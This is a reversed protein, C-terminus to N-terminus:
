PIPYVHLCSPITTLSFTIFHAIPNSTEINHFFQQLSSFIFCHDSQSFNSILIDFATCNSTVSHDLAHSQSHAALTVPILLRCYTLCTLFYNVPSTHIGRRSPLTMLLMAPSSTSFPTHNKLSYPSAVLDLSCSPSPSLQACHLSFSRPSQFSSLLIHLPKLAATTLLPDDLVTGLGPSVSCVREM